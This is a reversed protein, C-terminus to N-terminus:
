GASRTLYHEGSLLFKAGHKKYKTWYNKKQARKNSVNLWVSAENIKERLSKIFELLKEFFIVHYVGPEIPAQMAAIQTKEALGDTEYSLKQIENMLAQLHVRLESIKKQSMREEEQRLKRELAIQKKLKQNEVNKESLVDGVEITGGPSVEGSFKKPLQQGLLQRIFDKSTGQILDTKVSDGASSGVDKLTELVNKHGIKKTKSSKQKDDM